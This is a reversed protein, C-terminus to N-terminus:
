NQGVTMGARREGVLRHAGFALEDAVEGAVRGLESLRVPIESRVAGDAQAPQRVRLLNQIPLVEVHQLLSTSGADYPPEGLVCRAFVQEGPAVAPVPHVIPGRRTAVMSTRDSPWTLVALQVHDQTVSRATSFEAPRRDYREISFECTNRQKPPEFGTRQNFLGSRPSKQVHPPTYPTTKM